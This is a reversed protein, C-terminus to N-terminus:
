TTEHQINKQPYIVTIYFDANFNTKDHVRNIPHSYVLTFLHKGDVTGDNFYVREENEQKEVMLRPFRRRVEENVDIEIGHKRLIDTLIDNKFKAIKELIDVQAKFFADQSLSGTFTENSM